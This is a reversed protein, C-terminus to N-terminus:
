VRRRIVNFVQRDVAGPWSSQSTTELRIAVIPTGNKRVTM